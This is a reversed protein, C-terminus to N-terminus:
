LMGFGKSYTIAKHLREKLKERNKYDPLLIVNFCTHATPLRESDPGNRAIVLKVQSLGGVPARDTGTTFQLLRKQEEVSMEHVVSWFDQVTESSRTFGGDYDTTSELQAFDYEQSGSILIELEEPRFMYKLPSKVVVLEFGHRFASFQEAISENLLWDAYLRVYEERNDKTVPLNEGGEKLEHLHTIGFMDSYEVSFTALMDNEVDGEYELLQKLSRFLVPHSDAMDEFKARKGLLKKYVVSPFKIDLICNNYIALGLVIGILTFQAKTELSHANFWFLNTSGDYTFMGYDPNFIQEVVLQFFEKSVGGEDVGQEGEFEVYLQKRLDQPNEEAILELRVLSDEIVHDRRIKLRLYPSLASGQLISQLVMLRRGSLMRVKNDYFLYTTKNVTNLVFPCHMFTFHDTASKDLMHYTFDNYVDFSDNLLENQFEEHPVLPKGTSNMSVGLEEGLPDKWIKGSIEPDDDDNFGIFSPLGHLQSSSPKVEGRADQERDLEGGLLSAYYLIKLSRTVSVITENKHLDQHSNGEEPLSISLVKYTLLQQMCQVMSKLRDADYKSWFKALVAQAQVPLSTLAKCFSPLANELYEPSHLHPNEMVILIPNLNIHNQFHGRNLQLLINHQVEIDLALLELSNVLAAEVKEIGTLRQYVNRVALIDVNPQLVTVKKKAPMIKQVAKKKKLANSRQLGANEVPQNVALGGGSSTNSPLNLMDNVATTNTVLSNLLSMFPGHNEMSSTSSNTTESSPKLTDDASPVSDYQDTEMKEDEAKVLELDPEPILLFSRNLSEVNSFVKGILRVLPSYPDKTSQKGGTDMENKMSEEDNRCQSLLDLIKEETAYEIVKAHVIEPHPIQDKFPSKSEGGKETNSTTPVQQLSQTSPLSAANSSGVEAMTVCSNQPENCDMSNVETIKSAAITAETKDPKERDDIALCIEAKQRLLNIAELAAENGSMKQREPNSACHPNTCNERNCGQTLRQFYQEIKRRVAQQRLAMGGKATITNSKAENDSSDGVGSNATDM